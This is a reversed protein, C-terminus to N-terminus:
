GRAKLYLALTAAIAYSVIVNWAAMSLGFLSWPIEDCRVPPLRDFLSELRLTGVDLIGTGSCGDPGAWWHQEVGAQYAAIGGGVLMLLACLVLTGRMLTDSRRAVVFAILCVAAMVGYPVRQYLCLVCPRLDFGYQSILAFALSGTGVAGLVAVVFSPPFRSLFSM